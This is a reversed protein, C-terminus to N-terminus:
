IGRAFLRHFESVRGKPTSALVYEGGTDLLMPRLVETLVCDPVRAAEDVIIRDASLGRLARGDLGATRCLIQSVGTAPIGIKITLHPSQRVEVTAGGVKTSPLRRVLDTIRAGLLRAQADTPAVVLQICGPRVLALTVADMALLQTKGWRRGCAAVKIEATSDFFKRQAEHPQWRWFDRMMGLQKAGDLLRQAVTRWAM